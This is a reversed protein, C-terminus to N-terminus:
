RQFCGEHLGLDPSPSHACCARPMVILPKRFNRKMPPAALPLVAGADHLCIQQQGAVSSSVGLRASSYRGQRLLMAAPSGFGSHGSVEVRLRSSHDIVVQAGHRLRRVAGGVRCDPPRRPDHRVGFGLVRRPFCPNPDRLALPRRSPTSRCWRAGTEVDHLVAHRQSFPLRATDQGAVRVSFGRPSRAIALAEGCGWHDRHM